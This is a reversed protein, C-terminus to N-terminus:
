APLPPIRITQGPYIKDADEIVGSNEEVIYRYKNADGYFQKSIKSLTDGKQITYFVSSDAPQASESQISTPTAQPAAPPTTPTVTPTVQPAPQPPAVTRSAEPAPAAPQPALLKFADVREVGAINGAVLIAKEKTKVTDCNGCLTVLGSDYTVALDDIRNNQRGLWEVLLKKIDEANPNKAGFIANGANKSFNFLGM